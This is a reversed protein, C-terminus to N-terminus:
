KETISFALHGSDDRELVLNQAAPLSLADACWTASIPLERGGRDVLVALDIRAPRGYDFLENMAARITRGTYLVDDVIVVHADEVEFPIASPKSGKKLGRRNFDDRYLSVDMTGLPTTLGLRQHLSEAIWAGGTRIGVLATRPSVQPQMAAVLRTLLQEADPLKPPM